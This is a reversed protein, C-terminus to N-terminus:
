TLLFPVAPPPCPQPHHCPQPAASGLPPTETLFWQQLLLHSPWPRPRLLPCTRGDLGRSGWGVRWIWTWCGEGKLPRLGLLLQGEGTNPMGM